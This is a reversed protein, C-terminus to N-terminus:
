LDLIFKIGTPKDKLHNNYETFELSLDRLNDPLPPSVVFKQTSHGGSGSGGIPRCDYNQGISLYFVGKAHRRHLEELSNSDNTDNWDIDLHVVSANDFQRIFTVSYLREAVERTKMVPIHKRFKNPEVQPRFFEENKLLQFLSKLLDEYLGYKKMWGSIHELPPFGPNNNSLEKRQKLLGCLQEDISLIQENYYSSEEVTVKRM